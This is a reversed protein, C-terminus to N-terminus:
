PATSLDNKIRELRKQDALEAATPQKTEPKDEFMSLLSSRIDKTKEIVAPTIPASHAKNELLTSPHPYAELDIGSELQFLAAKYAIEFLKVREYEKYNQKYGYLDLTRRIIHQLLPSANHWDNRNLKLWDQLEALVAEMPPHNVGTAQNCWEIFQGISPLFPSNHARAKTFGAEIQYDTTIDNEILGKLWEAKARDQYDQDKLAAAWAPFIAKLGAFIKNVLEGAQRLDSQSASGIRAKTTLNHDQM